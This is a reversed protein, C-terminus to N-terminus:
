YDHEILALSYASLLLKLRKNVDIRAGARRTKASIVLRDISKRDFQRVGHVRLWAAMVESAVNHPLMIFQLRDLRDIAPHMHLHNALHADINENQLRANKIIGLFKEATEKDLKPIINHRIHNRLYNTDINTPDENWHLGKSLAYNIIESKSFDLLPRKVIVTSKLSSLGRRGTGRLINLIATELVDDQHHATIIAKASASERVKHLFKYRDQRATDESAAAGLKGEDYIFQLGHQSAAHQVLKRDLESDKRIGHDFHAVVFRWRNSNDTTQQRNDTEEVSSPNSIVSLQSQQWLMHLLAMSDVGGSVAVVYTGPELEIKM